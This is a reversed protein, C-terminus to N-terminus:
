IRNKAELCNKKMAENLIQLCAEYDILNLSDADCERAKSLAKKYATLGEKNEHWTSAGAKLLKRIIKMNGKGAAIILATDGEINELEINAHAEILTNLCDRENYSAALMVATNGDNNHTNVNARADLLVVISKLKNFCVAHMLATNGYHYDKVNVEAKNTLLIKLGEVCEKMACHMLATYGVSDRSNVDAGNQTLLRICSVYEETTVDVSDMHLRSACILPTTGDNAKANVDAGADILVQCRGPWGYFAAFMLATWGDNDKANLDIKSRVLQRLCNSHKDILIRIKNERMAAFMLATNGNVDDKINGDAGSELLAHVAGPNGNISSHMLATRGQHGRHNVNSNAIILLKICETHEITMPNPHQDGNGRAAYVLATDGFKDTISVDAGANLLCELCKVEGNMACLMAATLENGDKNRISDYRLDDRREHISEPDQNNKRCIYLFSTRTNVNVGKKLYMQLIVDMGCSAACFFMDQYTPNTLDLEMTKSAWETIYELEMTLKNKQSTMSKVDEQLQDSQDKLHIKERKLSDSENQLKRFLAKKIKWDSKKKKFQLDKIDIEEQLSTKVNRENELKMKLSETERLLSQHKEEYSRKLRQFDEAQRFIQGKLEKDRSTWMERDLQYQLKHKDLEEQLTSIKKFYRDQSQQMYQIKCNWNQEESKFKLKMLDLQKKQEETQNQLLSINEGDIANQKKKEELATQVQFLQGRLTRNEERCQCSLEEASRYVRNLHPVSKNLENYTRLAIIEIPKNSNVQELCWKYIIYISDGLCAESAAHTHTPLLRQHPTHTHTNPSAESTAHTHQSSA